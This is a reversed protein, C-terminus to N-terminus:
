HKIRSANLILEYCYFPHKSQNPFYINELKVYDRSEYFRQNRKNQSFTDLRVSDFNNEKAYAEAFDMMKRAFGRGQVHPHLALRHIYINNSDHTLWQVSNYELDKIESIVIIGIIEDKLVMKWIQRLEIDKKLVEKSPYFENWQFIKEAILKKACESTLAIIQPLDSITAKVIRTMLVFTSYYKHNYKGFLIRSSLPCTTEYKQFNYPKLSSPRM